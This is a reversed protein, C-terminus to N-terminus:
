NNEQVIEEVKINVLGKVLQAIREFAVAELDIRRGTWKEPGFDRVEVIVQKGNENNTVRLWTGRPFIRSACTLKGTYRYWSAIGSKKVKGVKIKTGVRIIEDIPEKIIESSVIEKSIEKGNKYTIKYEIKEQGKQGEQQVNRKKWSLKKDENEVTEFSIDKKKTVTETNIRTVVIEDGAQFIEDIKPEVEDLKNLNVDKENLLDKITFTFTNAKVMKDDVLIEVDRKRWIEIVMGPLLRTKDSPVIWDGEKLEFEFEDKLESIDNSTSFIRYKLGEDIVVLEKEKPYTFNRKESFFLFVSGQWILWVVVLFVVIKMLKIIKMLALIDYFFHLFCGIM